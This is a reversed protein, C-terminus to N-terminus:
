KRQIRLRIRAARVDVILTWVNRSINEIRYNQSTGGVYYMEFGAFIPDTSLHKYGKGLGTCTAALELQTIWDFVTGVKGYPDMTCILDIDTDRLGELSGFNSVGMFTAWDVQVEMGAGHM